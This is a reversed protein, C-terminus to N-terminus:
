PISKLQLITEEIRALLADPLDLREIECGSAMLRNRIGFFIGDLFVSSYQWERRLCALLSLAGSSLATSAYPKFGMDRM